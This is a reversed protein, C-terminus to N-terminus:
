DDERARIRSVIRHIRWQFRAIPESRLYAPPLEEARLGYLASLYGARAAPHTPANAVMRDDWGERFGDVPCTANTHNPSEVSYM